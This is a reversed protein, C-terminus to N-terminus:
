RLAPLLWALLGIAALMGAVGIAVGAALMLAGHRESRMSAIDRSMSQQQELLTAFRSDILTAVDVRVAPLQV